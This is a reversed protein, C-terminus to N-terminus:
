HKLSQETRHRNKWIRLWYTTKESKVFVSCAMQSLSNASLSMSLNGRVWRWNNTSCVWKQRVELM